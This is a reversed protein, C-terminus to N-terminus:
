YLVVGLPVAGELLMATCGTAKRSSFDAADHDVAVLPGDM